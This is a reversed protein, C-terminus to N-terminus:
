VAGPGGALVKVTVRVAVETASVVFFPVAVMVTGAMVTVIAGGLAVTFVPAEAINVAVTVFSEEAVGLTVQLTEQEVAGHPVGEGM